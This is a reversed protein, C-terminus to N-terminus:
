WPTPWRCCKPRSSRGLASKAIGLRVLNQEYDKAIAGAEGHHHSNQLGLEALEKLFPIMNAGSKGLLEQAIATKAAGDAYQGLKQAVEVLLTGTDKLHGNSDRASM